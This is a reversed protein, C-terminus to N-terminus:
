QTIEELKKSFETIDKNLLIKIKDHLEKIENYAEDIDASKNLSMVSPYHFRHVIRPFREISKRLEPSSLYNYNQVDKLIINLAEAKYTIYDIEDESQKEPVITYIANELPLYLKELKKEIFEIERGKQMEKLSLKVLRTNWAAVAVSIATVGVLIVTAWATVQNPDLTLIDM